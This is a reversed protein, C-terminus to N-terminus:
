KDGNKKGAGPKPDLLEREIAIAKPFLVSQELYFHQMLDNDLEKLRYFVVKHNTCANGPISYSNTLNRMSVIIEMVIDHNKFLIDEIPKRLTKVLLAAYSEKDKHAHAIHRIYPFLVEEEQQISLQLLKSLKGLQHELLELYGFKKLHEKTFDRLSERTIPLAHNIYRHHVNLIYNILFDIDWGPYDLQNYLQINRTATELDTKVMELDVGRLQCAIDLPWKGGCCYGIGYSSFVEATRYDRAVIDSVLLKPDIPLSDLFM